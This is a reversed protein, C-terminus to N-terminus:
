EKRTFKIAIFLNIEESEEDIEYQPEIELQHQLGCSCCGYILEIEAPNYKYWIGDEFSIPKGNKAM